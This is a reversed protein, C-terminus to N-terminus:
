PFLNPLQEPSSYMNQGRFSWNFLFCVFYVRHLLLFAKNRSQKKSGPSGIEGSVTYGILRTGIGWPAASATQKCNESCGCHVASAKLSIFAGGSPEQKASYFFLRLSRDPIFCIHSRIYIYKLFLNYFLLWEPFCVCLSMSSISSYFPVLYLIFARPNLRLETM